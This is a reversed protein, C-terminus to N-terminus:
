HVSSKVAGDGVEAQGAGVTMRVVALSSFCLDEV